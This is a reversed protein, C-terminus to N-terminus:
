PSRRQGQRSRGSGPRAEVWGVRMRAEMGWAPSSPAARVEDFKTRLQAQREGKKQARGAYLTKGKMEKGQLADVAKAAGEPESFNVFGFGKSNGKDDQATCTSCIM